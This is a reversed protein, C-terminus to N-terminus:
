RQGTEWDFANSLHVAQACSGGILYIGVADFRVPRFSETQALYCAAIKRYRKQKKRDIAEEPFRDPDTKSSCRRTKVEIFVISDEDEDFAILDAEGADCRYNRELVRLGADEVFSAALVEGLMGLEKNNLQNVFKASRLALDPEDLDWKSNLDEILDQADQASRTADQTSM